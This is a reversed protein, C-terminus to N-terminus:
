YHFLSVVVDVVVVGACGTVVTAFVHVCKLSASAAILEGVAITRTLHFVPRSMPARALLFVVKYAYGEYYAHWCCLGRM